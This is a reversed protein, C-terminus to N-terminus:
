MPDRADEGEIGREVLSYLTFRIESIRNKFRLMGQERAASFASGPYALACSSGGVNRTAGVSFAYKTTRPSRTAHDDSRGDRTRGERVGEKEGADGRWCRRM